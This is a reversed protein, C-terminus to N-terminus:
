LLRRLLVRALPPQRRSRISAPALLDSGKNAPFPATNPFRQRGATLPLNGVDNGRDNRGDNKPKQQIIANM